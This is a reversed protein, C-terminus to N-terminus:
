SFSLAGQVTEKQRQGAQVTDAKRQDYIAQLRREESTMLEADRAKLEAERQAKEQQQQAIISTYPNEVAKAQSM